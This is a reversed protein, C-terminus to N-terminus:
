RTLEAELADILKQNDDRLRVAIRHYGPKLGRFNRCDRILIGRGELRDRLDPRGSRFFLFNAESGIPELGLRRLEGALWAKEGAIAALSKEVYETEKLAALGVAQAINSVSWPQGALHLTEALYPDGTLAYGLRIGAIGYLKTFSDIVILNPHEKFLGRLSYREPDPLFHCFCEDIVMIVRKQACRRLLERLLAPDTAHGTPNNPQCWFLMDMNSSIVDLIDEDPKFDKEESFYHHCIRSGAASLAQEYEEFNPVPLLVTRPKFGQALRHIIDAAGNGCFVQQEALGHREALAAALKRSYPDPYSAAEDVAAIAAQRVGPPIGFPNLSASFDLPKRGHRLEFGTVDGGHIPEM